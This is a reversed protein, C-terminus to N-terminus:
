DKKNYRLNSAPFLKLICVVFLFSARKLRKLASSSSFSASSSSSVKSSRAKVKVGNPDTGFDIRNM